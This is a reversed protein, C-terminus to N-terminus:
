SPQEKDVTSNPAELRQLARQVRTRTHHEPDNEFRRIVDISRTDGLVGLAQIVTHRLTSSETSLLIETLPEVARLDGSTELVGVIKIQTIIHAHPLADILAAVGEQGYAQIGGVAIDALLADSGHLWDNMLSFSRPHKIEALVGAATWKTPSNQTQVAQTLWDIALEGAELLAVKAAQQEALIPSGLAALLHSASPHSQM